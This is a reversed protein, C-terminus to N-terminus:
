GRRKKAVLQEVAEDLGINQKALNTLFGFDERDTSYLANSYEDLILRGVITVGSSHLLMESYKGPQLSVSKILPIIDKFAESEKLAGLGKDDQKLLITWASNELITKHDQSNNFDNFNQVCIVLSGGYKRVTRCFAAFFGAAFDLLRWAEDVIIMFPTQRDGTLFQNTVEMLLIQLIIALLKRDDKIEEFEFVTILRKFSATKNGTFYKGYLGKETYPYLTAGFNKLNVSESNELFEAFSTIDMQYNSQELSIVLAKELESSGQPNDGVGCMIELLGKACKLLEDKDDLLMGQHFGSFPNLDFPSNKGFQITEGDSEACINAYSQGIDLIFMRTNQAAMSLALEQLFVSKGGGSPAFIAINYNGSNIKVFPNFNFLQGRRGHLLVGSKDVGKWEAYIPLRAVVEGSLVLRTLKFRSIIGFMQPQQMPLMSLVAPLQLNNSIALQCNNLNYLSILEQGVRELCDTPATVMLQWHETLFREGNKARDNIDQWESAERKLNRDNRSYWKEASDILKAGRAMIARKGAKTINSAVTYSIIFRAAIGMGSIPDGLLNINQSLWFEAPLEALHYCRSSLQSALHNIETAKVEVPSAPLLIQKALIEYQDYPQKSTKTLRMQLMSRVLAILDSANCNRNSLGLSNLKHELQGKFNVLETLGAQKPIIQSFSIFIRFDRAIRGDSNGFDIARQRLFEVRKSTIKGILRNKQSRGDQWYDIIGEIDHSAVLLFQLYSHEPLEDNFFHQLNKIMGEDLGVMPSIELLWGAVNGDSLFIQRAEDFYRYSLYEDLLSTGASLSSTSAASDHTEVNETLGFRSALKEGIETIKRLNM